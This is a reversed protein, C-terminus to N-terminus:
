CNFPPTPKKLIIQGYQFVKAGKILSLADHAHRWRPRPPQAEPSFQSTM